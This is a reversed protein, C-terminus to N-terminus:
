DTQDQLEADPSSQILPVIDAEIDTSIIISQCEQKIRRMRNMM